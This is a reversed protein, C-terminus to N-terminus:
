QPKRFEILLTNITSTLYGESAVKDKVKKTVLNEICEAAEKSIGWQWFGGVLRLFFKLDPEQTRIVNRRRLIEFSDIGLDTLYKEMMDVTIENEVVQYLLNPSNKEPLIENWAHHLIEMMQPAVDGGGMFQLIVSGSPKLVRVMEALGKRKDSILHFVMNSVVCDFEEDDFPLHCASACLFEFNRLHMEQAHERAISLVGGSLDIGVVRQFSDIEPLRLTLNGTGCGIDLISSGPLAKVRSM